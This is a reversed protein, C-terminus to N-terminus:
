MINFSLDSMNLPRSHYDFRISHIYLIFLHNSFFHYLDFLDSLIM